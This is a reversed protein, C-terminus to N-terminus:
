LAKMEAPWVSLERALRAHKQERDQLVLLKEMEPTMGSM